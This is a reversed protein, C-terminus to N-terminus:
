PGWLLEVGCCWGNGVFLCFNAALLYFWHLLAVTSCCAMHGGLSREHARRPTCLSVASGFRTQLGDHQRYAGDKGFRWM